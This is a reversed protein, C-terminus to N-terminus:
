FPVRESKATMEKVPTKKRNIWFVTLGICLLTFAGIQGPTVAHEGLTSQLYRTDNTRLSDFFFRVPGYYIPIFALFFGPFWPKARYLFYVIPVLSLAWIAEYLGLDHCATSLDWCWGASDTYYNEGCEKGPFSSSHRRLSNCIGKTALFFDSQLGPHDHAMFCGVRGLGFALPFGYIVCDGYHLASVRLLLPKKEASDENEALRKKNEKRVRKAERRFFVYCLLSTVIFGGFSSLGDWFKLLYLPDPPYVQGNHTGGFLKFPEYFFTHGWHGGVFIGVIMWNLVRNIIDPDLGDKKAKDMAMITGLWLGIAVMIGFGHVPLNILPVTIKVPEFFPIM